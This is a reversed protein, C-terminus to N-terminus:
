WYAFQELLVLRGKFDEFAEGGSNKVSTFAIEPAPEGAQAHAAGALLAASLMMQIRM